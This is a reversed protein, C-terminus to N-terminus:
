FPRPRGAVPREPDSAANRGDLRERSSSGPRCEGNRDANHPGGELDNRRAETCPNCFQESCEEYPQWSTQCQCYYVTGYCEQCACAPPYCGSDDGNSM